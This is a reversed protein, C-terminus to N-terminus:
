GRWAGSVKEYVRQPPQSPLLGGCSSRWASPGHRTRGAVWRSAERIRAPATIMLIVGSYYLTLALHVEARSSTSSVELRRHNRDLRTSGGALAVTPVTDDTFRCPPHFLPLKTTKIPRHECISGLVDGAIAGLM